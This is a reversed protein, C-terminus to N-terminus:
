SNSHEQLAGPMHMVAAAAAAAAASVSTANNIQV